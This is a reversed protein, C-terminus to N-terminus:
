LLRRRGSDVGLRFPEGGGVLGLLCGGLGCGGRGPRLLQGIPDAGDAVDDGLGRGRPRHLLDGAREPARAPGVDLLDEVARRREPYEGAVLGPAASPPLEGARRHLLNAAVAEEHEAGM